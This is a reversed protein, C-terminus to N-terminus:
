RGRVAFFAFAGVIAMIVLAPILIDIVDWLGGTINVADLINDLVYVGIGGVVSAIVVGIVIASLGAGSQGRNDMKLLDGFIPIKM